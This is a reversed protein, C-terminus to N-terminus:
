SQNSLEAAELLVCCGGTLSFSPWPSWTIITVDDNRFARNEFHKVNVRLRFAPTKLNRRKSSRKRFAGNKHVILTSSRLGWKLQTKLNRRRLTCATKNLGEYSRNVHFTAKITWVMTLESQHGFCLCLSVRWSLSLRSLVHFYICLLLSSFKM